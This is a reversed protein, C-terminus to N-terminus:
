RFEAQSHPQEPSMACMRLLALWHDVSPLEVQPPYPELPPEPVLKVLLRIEVVDFQGVQSGGVAATHVTGAHRATEAQRSIDEDRM